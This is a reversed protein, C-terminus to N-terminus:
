DALNIVDDDALDIVAAAGSRTQRPPRPAPPDAVRAQAGRIQYVRGERVLATPAPAPRPLAAPFHARIDSVANRRQRVRPPAGFPRSTPNVGDGPRAPPPRPRVAAVDRRPSEPALLPGSGRASRWRETRLRWDAREDATAATEIKQEVLKDIMHVPALVARAPM